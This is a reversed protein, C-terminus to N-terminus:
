RPRVACSRLLNSSPGRLLPLLSRHHVPVLKFDKVGGGLGAAEGMGALLEPERLRRHRPLHARELLFERHRQKVAMGAAQDEGLLAIQQETRASTNTFSSAARALSVSLRSRRVAIQPDRGRGADAHVPERRPEAFEDLKIRFNADGQRVM